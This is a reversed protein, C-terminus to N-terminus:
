DTSFRPLLLEDKNSYHHYISAKEIGAEEAIAAMSLGEYGREQLVSLAARLIRERTGEVEAFIDSKKM